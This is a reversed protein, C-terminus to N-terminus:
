HGELDVGFDVSLETHVAVSEEANDLHALVGGVRVM